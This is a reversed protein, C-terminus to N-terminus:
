KQNLDERERLLIRTANMAAYLNKLRNYPGYVFRALLRQRAKVDSKQFIFAFIKLYRM